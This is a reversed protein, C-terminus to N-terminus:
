GSICGWSNTVATSNAAHSGSQQTECPFSADGELYQQSSGRPRCGQVIMITDTLVDIM